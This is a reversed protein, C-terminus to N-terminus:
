FPPLSSDKSPWDEVRKGARPSHPVPKRVLADGLGKWVPGEGCLKKLPKKLTKKSAELGLGPPRLVGM